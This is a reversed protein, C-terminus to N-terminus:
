ERELRVDTEGKSLAAYVQDFTQSFSQGKKTNLVRAGNVRSLGGQNVSGAKRQQIIREAEQRIRSEDSKGGERLQDLKVRSYASEYDLGKNLYPDLLGKDNIDRFDDYVGAVREFEKDLKLAQVEKGQAELRGGLKAEIIAAVSKQIIAALGEKTQVREFEEDTLEVNASGGGSRRAKEDELAKRFWTQDALARFMGADNKYAEVGADLARRDEALKQTKDHYDRLLSAKAEELEPPLKEQGLTEGEAKAPQGGAQLNGTKPIDQSQGGGTQGAPVGSEASQTAQDGLREGLITDM